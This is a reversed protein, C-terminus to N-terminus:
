HNWDEQLYEELCLGNEMIIKAHEKGVYRFHWPEYDYQTIETKDKPYRLIFGYNACHKYLWQYEPYQELEEVLGDDGAYYKSTVLDVSLGANHESEGPKAVLKEAEEQAQQKSYGQQILENVKQTLLYESRQPPRYGSLVALIVGQQKADQLMQQLYPLMRADVQQGNEVNVKEFDYDNPLKNEKNILILNWASRDISSNPATSSAVTSTAEDSRFPPSQVSSVSTSTNDSGEAPQLNSLLTYGGYTAASVLVLFLALVLTRRFVRKRQTKKNKPRSPLIKM